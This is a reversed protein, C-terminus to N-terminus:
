RFLRGFIRGTIKGSVRWGIRKMIRGNKVAKVDNFIKLFKYISNM